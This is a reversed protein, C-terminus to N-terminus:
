RVLSVSGKYMGDKGIRVIYYYTGSPLPEGNYTGDWYETPNQTSFVLNGYRDYIELQFHEVGDYNVVFYDNFGDNNPTFVNPINLKPRFVYIKKSITDVCGKDDAVILVISYTGPGEYTHRVEESTYSRGDGVLWLRKIINGKSTDRLYIESKPLVLTDTTPEKYFGAIVQPNIMVFKSSQFSDVCGYKNIALLRVTYYGSSDYTYVPNVDNSLNGDGFDWIYFDAGTTLNTFYIPEGFCKKTSDFLFYANPKPFVPIDISDRGSCTGEKIVLTLRISDTPVFVLSDKDNGELVLSDNVYWYFYASGLHGLGKIKITDYACVFNTDVVFSVNPSHQVSIFVTDSAVCSSYPSHYNITYVYAVSTDPYVLPTRDYISSINYNPSWTGSFNLTDPLAVKLQITDGQCITTDKQIGQLPSTVVFITISDKSTCLNKYTTYLYYTTTSDPFALPNLITDNSLTTSPSWLFHLEKTDFGPAVIATIPITDSPCIGPLPPISVVPYQLVEVTISDSESTCGKSSVQLYYTITYPPSAWPNHITDNSLGISPTWKYSYGLSDGNQGAIGIQISDGECIQVTDQYGAQAKPLTIVEVIVTSSSDVVSKCGSIPDEVILTYVTTKSPHTYPQLLTSDNLGTSPTWYYIVQGPPYNLIQAKITDGPGNECLRIDPGADIQPREKKIVYAKTTDSTCGMSDQVVLNYVSLTDVPNVVPNPSNLSSLGPPNPQWQYTYPPVGGSVFTFITDNAEGECVYLPNNLIGVVPKESVYVTVSDKVVGCINCTLTLVYTTTTDPSAIPNLIATSSLGRSPSWSVSCGPPPNFLQANLTVGTDPKCYVKDTGASIAPSQLVHLTDYVTDICGYGIVVQMIVKQGTSGWVVNHPGKTTASAPTGYNFTWFISTFVGNGSFSILTPTNACTYNPASIGGKVVGIFVSDSDVVSGNYWAYLVFLTSSSVYVNGTDLQFTSNGNQPVWVISDVNNEVEVYATDGKCVMITDDPSISIIGQSYLFTNLLLFLILRIGLKM